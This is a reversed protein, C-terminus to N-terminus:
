LNYIIIYLIQLYAIKYKSYSFGCCYSCVEDQRVFGKSIEGWVHRCKYFRRKVTRGLKEFSRWNKSRGTFSDLFLFECFFFEFFYSVDFVITGCFCGCARHIKM